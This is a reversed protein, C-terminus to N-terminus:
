DMYAIKWSGGRDGRAYDLFGLLIGRMWYYGTRGLILLLLSAFPLFTYFLKVLWPPKTYSLAQYIGTVTKRKYLEEKKVSKTRVTEAYCEECFVVKYGLELAKFMMYTDEAKCPKLPLIERLVNHRVMMLEGSAALPVRKRIPNFIKFFLVQPGERVLESAFVIATRVDEFYQLMVHFNGIKTDVDNFIVIDADEPILKEAFNIADYKGRPARYTVSQHDFHEGCVVVYPVRLRDLESIKESVYNKDRALVVFFPTNIHTL